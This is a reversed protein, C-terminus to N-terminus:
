VPTRRGEDCVPRFSCHGCNWASPRVPFDGSVHSEAIKTAIAWAKRTDRELQEADKVVPVVALQDGVFHQELEVPLRGDRQRMAMAYLGSQLDSRLQEPTRPRGTKTDVIKSGGTLTEIRDARLRLTFPEILLTLPEEVSRIVANSWAPDNAYRTLAEGAVALLDGHARKDISREASWVEDLLVLLDAAGVNEGAIRRAGARQLVAHILDGLAKERTSREPLRYFYRYAYQRPCTGYTDLQGFTFETPATRAPTTVAPARAPVPPAIRAEVRSLGAGLAATIPGLFVSAEARRRGTGYSDARSVTLEDISRTLAVYLLRAEEDTSSAGAALEEDVLDAPLHLFGHRERLPFRDQALQIVYVHGFELGKASHATSLLVSPHAGPDDEHQDRFGAEDALALYAVFSETSAGPRGAEFQQCLHVLRRLRAAVQSTGADADLAGVYESRMLAEHLVASPAASLALAALAEVDRALAEIADADAHALELPSPDRLVDILHGGRARQEELLALRGRPSVAYAPLRLLRVLHICRTVDAAAELLARVDKVEGTRFFDGGGSFRYPVGRAALQRGVGLLQENTRALVAQSSNADRARVAVILEAVEHEEDEVSRAHV